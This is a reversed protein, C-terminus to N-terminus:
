VYTNAPCSTCTRIAKVGGDKFSQGKGCAPQSICSTERHGTKTQYDGSSCAVCARKGSVTAIRQGAGCMLGPEVKVTLSIGGRLCKRYNASGTAEATIFLDWQTQKSYDLPATTTLKGSQSNIYFPPKTGGAGVNKVSYVLKPTFSLPAALYEAKPATYVPQGAALKEVLAVTASETGPFLDNYVDIQVKAKDQGACSTALIGVFVGYGVSGRTVVLHKFGAVEEKFDYDFPGPNKEKQSVYVTTSGTLDRVDIIM